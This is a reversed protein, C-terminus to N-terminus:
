IENEEFIADYDKCNSNFMNDMLCKYWIGKDWDILIDFHHCNECISKSQCENYNINNYEKEFVNFIDKVDSHNKIVWDKFKEYKDKGLFEKWYLERRLTRVDKELCSCQERWYQIESEIDIKKM